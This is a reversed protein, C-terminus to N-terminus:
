GDLWAEKIARRGRHLAQDVANRTMGLRAAVDSIELGELYRMRMVRGDGKPLRRLLAEISLREDVDVLGEEAAPDPVEAGEALPVENGAPRRGRITGTLVQHAVVRFPVRYRRGAALERVIRDLATHVVEVADVPGVHARARAVLDPYHRALLEAHRGESLLLEDLADSADVAV